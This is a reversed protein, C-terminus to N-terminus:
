KRYTNYEDCLYYIPVYIHLLKKYEPIYVYYMLKQWHTESKWRKPPTGPFRGDDGTCGNFICNTSLLKLM